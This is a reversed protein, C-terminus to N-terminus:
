SSQAWTWGTLSLITRGWFEILIPSCAVLSIELDPIQLGPLRQASSCLMQVRPLHSPPPFHRQSEYGLTTPPPPKCGEPSFTPGLHAPPPPFAPATQKTKRGRTSLPAPLVLLFCECGEEPSSGINHPSSYSFFSFFIKVDKWCHSSKLCQRVWTKFDRGNSNVKRRTTKRLASPELGSIHWGTEGTPNLLGPGRRGGGPHPQIPLQSQGERGEAPGARLKPRLPRLHGSYPSTSTDPLAGWRSPRCGAESLPEKQPGWGQMGSLLM